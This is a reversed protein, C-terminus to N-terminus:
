SALRGQGAHLHPVNDLLLKCYNCQAPLVPWLSALVMGKQKGNKHLGQM